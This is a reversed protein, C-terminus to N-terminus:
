DERRETHTELPFAHSRLHRLNRKAKPTQSKSSPHSLSLSCALSIGNEICFATFKRLRGVGKDRMTRFVDSAPGGFDVRTYPLTVRSKLNLSFSAREAQLAKRRRCRGDQPTSPGGPAVPTSEPRPPRFRPDGILDLLSTICKICPHWQARSCFNHLIGM